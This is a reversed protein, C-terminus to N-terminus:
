NNVSHNETYNCNKYHYKLQSSYFYVSIVYRSIFWCPAIENFVKWCLESVISKLHRIILYGSYSKYKRLLCICVLEQCSPSLWGWFIRVMQILLLEYSTLYSISYKRSNLWQWAKCIPVLCTVVKIGCYASLSTTYFWRM